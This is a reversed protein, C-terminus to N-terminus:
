PANASHSLEPPESLRQGPTGQGGAGASGKFGSFLPGLPTGKLWRLLVFGWLCVIVLIVTAPRAEELGRQNWKEYAYTAVTLPQSAMVMLSGVESIARGWTLLAGTFIAGSALPVSVRFFTSLPSAGLTRSVNDLQPGMDRFANTASRILFPSSVFIQCVIIGFEHGPVEIGFHGKLFKGVPTAPALVLLLVIGVVSQPIIIPIDILSDIFQKGWFELRAMAYALPVGLVMIVATSITATKASTILAARFESDQMTVMLTQPKTQLCLHVLPVIVAAVLLFGVSFCFLMFRNQRQPYLRVVVTLLFGLLLTTQTWYPPVLVISLFLVVFLGLLLTWRFSAAYLMGFIGFVVAGREGGLVAFCMVFLILYGCVYAITRRGGFVREYVFGCWLAFLNTAILVANTGRGVIQPFVLVHLLVVGAAAAVFAPSVGSKRLAGVLFGPVRALM